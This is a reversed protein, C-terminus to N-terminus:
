RRLWEAVNDKRTLKGEAIFITAASRQTTYTHRTHHQTRHVVYQALGGTRIVDALQSPKATRVREWDGTPRVFM